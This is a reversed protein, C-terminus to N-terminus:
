GVAKGAKLFGPQGCPTGFRQLNLQSVRPQDNLLDSAVIECLAHFATLSFDKDM